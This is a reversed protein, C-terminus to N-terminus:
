WVVTVPYAANQPDNSLFVAQEVLVQAILLRDFPDKHHNPLGDLRLIHKLEIPLLRVKNVAIQNQVLESLSTPLTLKGLLIKIQIEWISAISLLLTNDSDQCISAVRSSLRQPSSDMWIFTHTDLLCIM